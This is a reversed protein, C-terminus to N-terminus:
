EYKKRRLSNIINREFFIIYVVIGLISIILLLFCKIILPFYGISNTKSFILYSLFPAFILVLFKKILDVFDLELKENIVVLRILATLIYFLSIGFLAYSYDIKISVVTILACLCGFILTIKSVRKYLGMTNLFMDFLSFVIYSLLYIVSTISIIENLYSQENLNNTYTLIFTNLAGSCISITIAASLLVITSIFVFYEKSQNKSSSAYINGFTAAIANLVTIYIMKILNIIILYVSYISVYQLGYFMSVVIIPLGEIVQQIAQNIFFSSQNKIHISKTSVTLYKPKYKMDFKYKLYIISLITSILYGIYIFLFSLKFFLAAFLVVYYGMRGIFQAIILVSKEEHASFVIDYSSFYRFILCTNLGLIIVTFSIDFLSINNSNTLYVYPIIFLTLGFLLISLKKYIKKSSYYISSETQIDNNAIPKYMEFISSGIIGAQLLTLINIIQTVTSTLGNIKAGYTYIILNPVFFGLIVNVIQYILSYVVNKYAKNKKM